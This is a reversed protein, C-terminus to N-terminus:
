HKDHPAETRDYHARGLKMAADNMGSSDICGKCFVRMKATRTDLNIAIPVPEALAYFLMTSKRASRVLTGCAFCYLNAKRLATLSSKTITIRPVKM